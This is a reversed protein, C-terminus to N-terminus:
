LVSSITECLHSCSPMFHGLKSIYHLTPECCLIIQCGPCDSNLVKPSPKLCKESIIWLYYINTYNLRLHRKCLHSSCCIVGWAHTKIIILSIKFPVRRCRTFDAAAGILRLIDAGVLFELVYSCLPLSFMISLLFKWLPHVLFFFTLVFINVLMKFSFNCM